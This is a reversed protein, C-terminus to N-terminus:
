QSRALICAVRRRHCSHTSPPRLNRTQRFRYRKFCSAVSLKACPLMLLKCGTSARFCSVVFTPVDIKQCRDWVNACHFRIRHPMNWDRFFTESTETARSNRKAVKIASISTGANVQSNNKHSLSKRAGRNKLVRLKNSVKVPSIVIINRATSFIAQRLLLCATKIRHRSPM